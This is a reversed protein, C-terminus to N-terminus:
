FSVYQITNIVPNIM